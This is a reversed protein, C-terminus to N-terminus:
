TGKKWIACFPKKDKNVETKIMGEILGEEDKLLMHETFGKPILCYWSGNLNRFTTPYEM